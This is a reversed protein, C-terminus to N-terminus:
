LIKKNRRLKERRIIGRIENYDPTRGELKIKKNFGTFDKIIDKLKRGKQNEKEWYKYIYNDREEYKRLQGHTDKIKGNKIQIEEIKKWNKEIFERVDRKSAFKNIIISVPYAIINTEREIDKVIPLSLPFLIDLKNECPRDTIKCMDNPTDSMEEGKKTLRIEFDEGLAELMQFEYFDIGFKEAIELLIESKKDDSKANRYREVFIKFHRNRRIERSLRRKKDAPTKMKNHRFILM